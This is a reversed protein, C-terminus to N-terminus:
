AMLCSNSRMFLTDPEIPIPHPPLLTGYRFQSPFWVAVKRMQNLSKKMESARQEHISKERNKNLYPVQMKTKEQRQPSDMRDSKRRKTPRSQREKRKIKAFDM